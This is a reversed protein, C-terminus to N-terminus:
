NHKTKKFNSLYQTQIKFIKWEYKFKDNDTTDNFNNEHNLHSTEYKNTTRTKITNKNESKTNNKQTPSLARTIPGNKAWKALGLKARLRPGVLGAEPGVNALGLM